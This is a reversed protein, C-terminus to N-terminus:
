VAEVSSNSLMQLEKYSSCLPAGARVDPLDAQLRLEALPLWSPCVLVHCCSVAFAHKIFVCLLYKKGEVEGSGARRPM